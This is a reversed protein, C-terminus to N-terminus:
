SYGEPGRSKLGMRPDSLRSRQKTSNSSWARKRGSRSEAWKGASQRAAKIRERTCSGDARNAAGAGPQCLLRLRDGLGQRFFFARGVREIPEGKPRPWAIQFSYLGNPDLFPNLHLEVRLLDVIAQELCPQLAKGRHAQALLIQHLGKRGRATIRATASPFIGRGVSRTSRAM